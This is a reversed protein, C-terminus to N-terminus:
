AAAGYRKAARERAKAAEVERDRPPAATVLGDLLRHPAAVVEEVARDFIEQNAQSPKTTGSIKSVYQLAPAQFEEPTAPPEFNHLTRINRCMGAAYLRRMDRVRRNAVAVAAVRATAATARASDAGIVEEPTPFRRM